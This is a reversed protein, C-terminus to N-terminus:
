CGGGGGGTTPTSGGGAPPTEIYARDANEVQNAAPDAPGNTSYLAANDIALDAINAATLVTPTGGVPLSRRPTM